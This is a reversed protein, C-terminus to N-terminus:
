IDTEEESTSAESTTATTTATDILLEENVFVKTGFRLDIYQFKGPTLHGFEDSQRITELYGFTKESPEKLTAKLEGGGELSYFVDLVSDVEVRNVFWGTSALLSIFSKTALYDSNTMLSLGVSPLDQLTVYRVLSGGRLAPAKAFAYGTNDVFFCEGTENELCWLADPIYEDYSVLVGTSDIRKVQVNKIREVEAVARTIKDAPYFYFFRKPILGFYTGVLEAEVKAVVVAQDITEGGEASINTITFKEIRTGYWVGTLIIAIGLFLLAGFVLQKILLITAPNLSRRRTKPRPKM